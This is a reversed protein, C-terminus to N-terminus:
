EGIQAPEVRGTGRIVVVSGTIVAGHVTGTIEGVAFAPPQGAISLPVGVVDAVAPVILLVAADGVLAITRASLAATAATLALQATDTGVLAALAASVSVAATQLALPAAATGLLAHPQAGISAVAPVLQLEVLGGAGTSLPLVVATITALATPLSLAASGFGGLQVTVAAATVTAAAASLAASGVGSASLPLAVASSSAPTLSLAAAGSGTLQATQASSAAVAPTLARVAAGSGALTPARAGSTATATTLARAAAGSGALTPVRASATVVATSLTLTVPGASLDGGAFDDIQGTAASDRYFGFGVRTGTVASDTASVVEVGNAYGKISSGIAELRITKAGSTTAATAILSGSGDANNRWMDFRYAGNEVVLSLQYCSADATSARVLLTLENYSTTGNPTALVQAFQTQTACATNHAVYYVVGGSPAEVHNSVVSPRQSGSLGTVSWPPSPLTGNSYTFSDSLTTM